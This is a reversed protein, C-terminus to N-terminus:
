ETKKVKKRDIKAPLPCLEVSLPEGLLMEPGQPLEGWFTM